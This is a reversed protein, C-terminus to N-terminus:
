AVRTTELCATIFNTLVARPGPVLTQGDSAGNSQLGTWETYRERLLQHLAHDGVHNFFNEAEQYDNECAKFDQEM